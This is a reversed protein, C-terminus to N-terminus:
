TSNSPMAECSDICKLASSAARTARLGITSAGFTKGAGFGIGGDHPLLNRRRRAIFKGVVRRLSDEDHKYIYIYMCIYISMGLPNRAIFLLMCYLQLTQSTHPVFPFM